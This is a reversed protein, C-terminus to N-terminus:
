VESTAGHFIKLCGAAIVLFIKPSVKVRSSTALKCESKLIVRVIRKKFLDYMFVYIHRAAILCPASQTAPDIRFDRSHYLLHCHYDLIVPKSSLAQKTLAKRVGEQSLLLLVLVLGAGLLLKSSPNGTSLALPNSWFILNDISQLQPM